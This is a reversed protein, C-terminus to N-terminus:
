LFDAAAFFAAAQSPEDLADPGVVVADDDAGNGFALLHGFEIGVQPREDVLPLMARDLHALHGGEALHDAFHVLGGDHQAVQQVLREIVDVHVVLRKIFFNATVDLGDGRLFDFDYLEVFALLRNELMEVNGLLDLAKEPTHDGDPVTNVKDDFVGLGHVDNIDVAAM